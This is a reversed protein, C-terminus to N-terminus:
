LNNEWLDEQAEPEDPKQVVPTTAVARTFQDIVDMDYPNVTLAEAVTLTELNRGHITFARMAELVSLEHSLESYKADVNLKQLLVRVLEGQKEVLADVSRAAVHNEIVRKMYKSPSVQELESLYKVRNAVSDPLRFYVTKSKAM